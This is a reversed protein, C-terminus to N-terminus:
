GNLRFIVYDDFLNIMKSTEHEEATLGFCDRWEEPFCFRKATGKEEDHKDANYLAEASKLDFIMLHESNTKLITGMIRYKKDASWSMLESLKAIFLRCVIKRPIQKGDKTNCWLFSDKDNEGCPRLVLKRESPNVLFQVYKADPMKRMCAANVSLRVGDICIAPMNTRSLFEGRVVQYGDYSFAENKTLRQIEDSM